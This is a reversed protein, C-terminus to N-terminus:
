GRSCVNSKKCRALVAERGAARWSETGTSALSRSPAGHELDPPGDDAIVDSSVGRDAGLPTSETGVDQVHVWGDISGIDHDSDFENKTSTM